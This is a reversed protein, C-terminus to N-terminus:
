SDEGSVAEPFHVRAYAQLASKLPESKWSSIAWRLYKAGEEGKEEHVQHIALGKYRGSEFKVLGAGAAKQAIDPPVFDSTDATEAAGPEEGEFDSAPAADKGGDTTGSAAEGEEKAAERPTPTPQEEAETEPPSPSASAELATHGNAFDPGYLRSQASLALARALEPDPTFSYGVVLFPKALNAEPIAAPIQLAARIAREIAKTEAK